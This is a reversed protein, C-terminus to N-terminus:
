GKAEKDSERLMENFIKSTPARLIDSILEAVTVGRYGAVQKLRSVIVRDVKVTVDDRDSKPRGKKSKAVDLLGATGM